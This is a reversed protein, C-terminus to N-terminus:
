SKQIAFWAGFPPATHAGRGVGDRRRKGRRRRPHERDAAEIRDLYMRAADDAKGVTCLDDLRALASVGVEPGGIPVADRSAEIAALVERGFGRRFGKGCPEPARIRM